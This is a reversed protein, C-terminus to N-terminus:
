RGVRRIQDVIWVITQVLIAIVLAFCVLSGALRAVENARGSGFDFPFVQVLALWVVLALGTLAIQVLAHFWPRDYSMFVANAVISASLALDVAWRVDAWAPTIFPLQWNLLNHAVVMLVANVVIAIIYGSQRWGYRTEESPTRWIPRGPMERGRRGDSVSPQGEPQLPRDQQIMTEEKRDSSRAVHQVRAPRRPTAPSESTSMASRKSLALRAWSPALAGPLSAVAAVKL